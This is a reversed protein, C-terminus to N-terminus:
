KVLIVLYKSTSWFNQPNTIRLVYQKNNDRYLTYSSVPHITLMKAMKSYFKIEHLDRIDIKTFYNKNFNGQLLKGSILIGQEKLEKKNGFAYWATNLQKDQLNITQINNQNDESLTSVNTNLNNITEDLEAIHIDKENLQERFRQLQQDKEDLQKLLNNITVRLAEGKISSNELKKQLKAILDRNLTMKNVIFKINDKIQKVESTDEGDGNVINVRNEAENIERFGEQIENMVSMMDNIENDKQALLMDVSDKQGINELHSEKKEKSACGVLTLAFITFIALFNKKM